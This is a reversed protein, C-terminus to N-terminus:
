VVSKRDRVFLVSQAVWTAILPDAQAFDNNNEVEPTAMSTGHEGQPFIVLQAKNGCRWMAEAYDIAHQYPVLSDGATHWLFAPPTYQNVNLDCFYQRWDKEHPSGTFTEFATSHNLGEKAKMVTYGLIAGDPRLSGRWPQAKTLEDHDYLTCMCAALHGGASFGCLVIKRDQLGWAADHRIFDIAQALDILAEHGVGKGTARVDELTKVHYHLVAADFGHRAFALAVKRDERYSLFGYGGGPLVIVLYKSASLKPEPREPQASPKATVTMAAMAAMNESAHSRARLLSLSAGNELTVTADVPVLQALRNMGQAFEDLAQADM